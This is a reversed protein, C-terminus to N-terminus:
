LQYIRSFKDQLYDLYYSPDFPQGTAKIMIDAPDYLAGYRHINAKLWDIIQYYRDHALCSDVDIDQRMKHYFQAAYASGLAYTPFYGFSGQAWHIDQLIGDHASPSKIGLYKEYMDDWVKDLGASSLSGDFLGKEIEYRIMIHLPYTLEDAETRVLSPRAVNVAAWFEELSVQGLQDPFMKQMPGYNAQWFPLSRGLYNEALRSQSEHMGSTVGSLLISGDYQPNTDHAYFAHGIEHVTSLIGSIIDNKMYRTTTRVDNICMWDTFPHESQGQYGWAPDYGLYKKILEMYEKQKGIDYDAHLFSDAPQHPSRIVQQLLPVLRQRMQEFLKDYQAMTLGTEYDDLMRDYLPINKQRHSYLQATAAIMKQLTPEFIKYDDKKRANRWIVTSSSQLLTYAVFEDKPVCNIKEMERLELKVKRALTEDLQEKNLDQLLAYIQPDTELSFAEGALFSLRQDRYAAGDAPAITESDFNIMGCALQYASLKFEWDNYSKIKEELTM